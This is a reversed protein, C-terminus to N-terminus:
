HNKELSMPVTADSDEENALKPNKVPTTTYDNNELNRARSQPSIKDRKGRRRKQSSSSTPHMTDGEEQTQLQYDYPPSLLVENGGFVKSSGQQIPSKESMPSLQDASSFQFIERMLKAFPEDSNESSVDADGAVDADNFGVAAGDETDPDGGKANEETNGEVEPSEDRGEDNEDEDSHEFDVSMIKRELDSDEERERFVHSTGHFISGPRLMSTEEQERPRKRDQRKIKRGRWEIRGEAIGVAEETPPLEGIVSPIRLSDRCLKAYPRHEMLEPDGSLVLKRGLGISQNVYVCKKSLPDFVVPHRYMLLAEIFVREYEHKFEQTLHEADYCLKYAEEFVISLPSVKGNGEKELQSGDGLFAKSVIKHATILGMGKLKKHQGGTYDCGLLVFLTAMMVPTFDMLNVQSGTTPKIKPLETEESSILGGIPLAGIDSRQWLIGVPIGKSIKYLVYPAGHAILDSDETIILDIYRQRAFYALQGDSEYPAVLLSICKTPDERSTARLAETLSDLIRSFYPGPGARKNAKTRRDTAAQITTPSGLAVTPDQRVRNHEEALERRRAVEKGKIPPSRGDLVVLLQANTTDRLTQLRKMVSQTCLVVYDHITEESPGSSASDQNAAETQEQVLSARGYNTLHRADGLRDSFGFGAKYIWSTVDVGIRLPRSSRTGSNTKFRKDSVGDKFDRLDVPRGSCELIKPLVDRVGM